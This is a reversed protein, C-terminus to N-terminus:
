ENQNMGNRIGNNGGVDKGLNCSYVWEVKDGAKLKHQSCGYNPFVGNVKYMWGSLEGCDFEYINGIGEIYASNYIPTSVFEMHISNERMVRLLLDFVSEGDILSVSREAFIVGDKPIFPIKDENLGVMNNLITDCRVSLTCTQEKSYDPNELPAAEPVSKAPSVQAVDIDDKPSTTENTAEASQLATTVTDTMKSEPLAEEHMAINSTNSINKQLSGSDGGWLYALILVVAIVTAAIIKNIHKKM